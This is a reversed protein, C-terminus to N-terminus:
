GEPDAPDNLTYAVIEAVIRAIAAQRKRRTAVFHRYAHGRAAAHEEDCYRKRAANFHEASTVLARAAAIVRRAPDESAKM